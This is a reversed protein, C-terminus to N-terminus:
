SLGNQKKWKRIRTRANSYPSSTNFQIMRGLSWKEYWPMEYLQENTKEEILELIGSVTKNFKKIMEKFSNGEYDKYFKQALKGLENWKYGTDPLDPTQNKMKKRNWKLVLEGWGVLYAVLDCASMKTGKAHGEMNKLKALDAPINKFEINLKEANITIAEILQDKNQPVPM